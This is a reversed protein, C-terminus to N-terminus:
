HWLLHSMLAPVVSENAVHIMMIQVTLNNQIVNYSGPSQSIQFIGSAGNFNGVYAQVVAGNGLPMQATADGPTTLDPSSPLSTPAGGDYVLSGSANGLTDWYGTFHVGFSFGSYGGRMQDLEQDALQVGFGKDASWSITWGLAFQIILFSAALVLLRKTSKPM